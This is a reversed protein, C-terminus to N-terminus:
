LFATGAALAVWAAGAAVQFYKGKVAFEQLEFFLGDACGVRGQLYAYLRWLETYYVAVGYDEVFGDVCRTWFGDFVTSSFEPQCFGLHSDGRLSCKCQGYSGDLLQCDSDTTCELVSSGATLTKNAARDGCFYTPYLQPETLPSLSVAPQCPLTEGVVSSLSQYWDLVGVASCADGQPCPSNSLQVTFQASQRACVGPQLNACEMVPCTATATLALALVLLAVM